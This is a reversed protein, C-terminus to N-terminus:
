WIKAEQALNRRVDHDSGLSSNGPWDVGGIRLLPPEEMATYVDHM